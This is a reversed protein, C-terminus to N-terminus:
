FFSHVHCCFPKTGKFYGVAKDGTESKIELAQRGNYVCM